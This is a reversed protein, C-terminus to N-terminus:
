YPSKTHTQKPTLEPGIADTREDPMPPHCGSYNSFPNHPMFGRLIGGITRPPPTEGPAEAMSEPAGDPTQETPSSTQEAAEESPLALTAQALRVMEASGLSVGSAILKTHHTDGKAEALLSSKLLGNPASSAFLISQIMEGHALAASKKDEFKVIYRKAGDASFAGPANTLGSWKGFFSSTVRVDQFDIYAPATAWVKNHAGVHTPPANPASETPPAQSRPDVFTEPIIKKDRALLLQYGYQEAEEALVRQPSKGVGDPVKGLDIRLLLQYATTPSVSVVAERFLKVGLVNQISEYPGDHRNRSFGKTSFLFVDDSMPLQPFATFYFEKHPGVGEFPSEKQLIPAWKLANEPTTQIVWRKHKRGYPSTGVDVAGLEFPVGPTRSELDDEKEPVM